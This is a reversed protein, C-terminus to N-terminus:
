PEDNPDTQRNDNVLQLIKSALEHDYITEHIINYDNYLICIANEGDIEEIIIQLKRMKGGGNNNYITFYNM